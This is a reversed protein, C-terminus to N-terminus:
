MKKLKLILVYYIIKNIQVTLFVVTDYVKLNVNNDKQAVHQQLFWHKRKFEYLERERENRM